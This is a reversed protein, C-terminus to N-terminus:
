KPFGRLGIATYLGLKCLAALIVVNLLYYVLLLLLYIPFLLLWGATIRRCGRACWTSIAASGWALVTSILLLLLIGISTRVPMHSFGPIESSPFTVVMSLIPIPLFGFYFGPTLLFLSLAIIAQPWTRNASQTAYLTGTIGAIVSALWMLPTPLLVAVVSIAVLWCVLRALDVPPQPPKNENM